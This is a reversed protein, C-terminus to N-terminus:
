YQYITQQHSKSNFLYYARDEVTHNGKSSWHQASTTNQINIKGRILLINLGANAFSVKPITIQNNPLMGELYDAQSCSLARTEQNLKWMKAVM